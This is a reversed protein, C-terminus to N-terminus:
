YVEEDEYEDEFEDGYPDYTGDSGGFSNPNSDREPTPKTDLNLMVLGLLLLTAGAIGAYVPMQADTVPTGPDGGDGIHQLYLFGSGALLVISLVILIKAIKVM